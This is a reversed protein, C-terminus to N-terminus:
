IEHRLKGGPVVEERVELSGILWQGEIRKLKDKHSWSVGPEQENLKSAPLARMLM